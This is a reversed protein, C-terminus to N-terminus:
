VNLDHVVLKNLTNIHVNRLTHNLSKSINQLLHEPKHPHQTYLKNGGWGMDDM